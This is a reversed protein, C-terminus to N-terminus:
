LFMWKFKCNKKKNNSKSLEYILSFTNQNPIPVLSGTSSINEISSNIKSIYNYGDYDFLKNKNSSRIPEDYMSQNENIDKDHNMQSDQEKIKEETMNSKNISLKIGEKTSNSSNNEDNLTTIQNLPSENISYNTKYISDYSGLISKNNYIEIKKLSNCNKFMYEYKTINNLSLLIAKTEKENEKEKKKSLIDDVLFSALARIKNCYIIRLNNKNNKVFIDGLIKLEKKKESFERRTWDSKCILKFAKM